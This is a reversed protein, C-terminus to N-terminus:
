LQIYHWLLMVKALFLDTKQNKTLLSQFIVSIIDASSLCSGLHAAGSIHSLYLVDKRVQNAFKISNM